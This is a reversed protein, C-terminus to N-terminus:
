PTGHLYQSVSSGIPFGNSSWQNPRKNNIYDLFEHVQEQRQFLCFIDNVYRRYFLLGPGSYQELWIKEHHGMFINALVPGLPSGM